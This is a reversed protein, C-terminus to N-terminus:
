SEVHRGGPAAAAGKGKVAPLLLLKLLGATLVLYLVLFTFLVPTIGTQVTVGQTVRMIGRAVWPQRGFETVLWGSELAILGFPSALLLARLTWTGTEKERRRWFLWWFWLAPGMMIFFSAVMLDFFPHVLRPDPTTGAPFADLGEVLADPDGSLLVSLGKPIKVAYRVQHTAPDPWGGLFLPAGRESTFLAEMAALKPKQQVALTKASWDGSVLMLPLAVTAVGLSLTLGRRAVAGRDGRLQAAAYVGAVAFGTAVYAALTAHVAEHAWAPNAFAEWPHLAGLAGNIVSFGAPTNMWANASIVFVASLAAAASLPITCFFLVRRSLRKGGYSYLALFIAEVFFAFGEMSFPLGILPGSLAMFRPWLLGLEFSLITGSVAGIAFLLGAPRVWSRALDHYGDDGAGLSVGEALMLLLPLGVGITAYVMHFGLSIGMLARASLVQDM